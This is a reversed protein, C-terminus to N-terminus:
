NMEKPQKNIYDAIIQAANQWKARTAVIRRSGRVGIRSVGIKYHAGDQSWSESIDWSFGNFTGRYTGCDTETAREVDVASIM